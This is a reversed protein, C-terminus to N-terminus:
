EMGESLTKTKLIALMEEREKPCNKTAVQDAAAKFERLQDNEEVNEVVEIVFHARAGAPEYTKVEPLVKKLIPCVQESYNAEAKALPTALALSVIATAVIIIKDLSPKSQFM